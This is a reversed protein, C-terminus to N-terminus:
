ENSFVAEFEIDISRCSKPIQFQIGIKNRKNSILNEKSGFTTFGSDWSFYPANQDNYLLIIDEAPCGSTKFAPTNVTLFKYNETWFSFPVLFEKETEFTFIDIHAKNLQRQAATSKVLDRDPIIFHQMKPNLSRMKPKSPQVEGCGSLSFSIAVLSSAFVRKM